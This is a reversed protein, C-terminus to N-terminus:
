KTKRRIIHSLNTYLSFAFLLCIILDTVNLVTKKYIITELLKWLDSIVYFLGYFILVSMIVNIGKIKRM